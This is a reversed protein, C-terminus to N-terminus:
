IFEINGDSYIRYQFHCVSIGNLYVVITGTDGSVHESLAFGDMQADSLTGSIKTVQASAEEASCSGTVTTTLTIVYEQNPNYIKHSFAKVTVTGTDSDVAQEKSEGTICYYSSTGIETALYPETNATTEEPPEAACGFLLILIWLLPIIKKM